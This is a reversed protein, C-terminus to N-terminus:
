ASELGTMRAFAPNTEEFRYDVPRGADDFLMEIICFGEDISNFLTRYRSESRRLWWEAQAREIAPAATRADTRGTRLSPNV